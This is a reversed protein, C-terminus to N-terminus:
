LASQDNTNPDDRTTKSLKTKM